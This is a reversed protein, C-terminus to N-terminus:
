LRQLDDVVEIDSTQSGVDSTQKSLATVAVATQDAVLCDVNVAHADPLFLVDSPLANSHLADSTHQGKSVGVASRHVHGQTFPSDLRIREITDM